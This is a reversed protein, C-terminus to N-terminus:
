PDPIGVMQLLEVARAEAGKSSLSKDHSRLTEEIQFGIRYVPDLSTM